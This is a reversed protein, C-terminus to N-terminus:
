CRLWVMAGLAVDLSALVERDGAGGVGAAGPVPIEGAFYVVGLRHCRQLVGVM